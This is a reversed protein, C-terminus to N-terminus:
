ASRYWFQRYQDPVRTGCLSSGSLPLGLWVTTLLSAMVAICSKYLPYPMALKISDPPAYLRLDTDPSCVPFSPVCPGAYERALGYVVMWDRAVRHWFSSISKSLPSGRRTANCCDVGYTYNGNHVLPM